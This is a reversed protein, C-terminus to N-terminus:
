IMRTAAIVIGIVFSTIGFVIFSLILGFFSKVFNWLKNGSYFFSTILMTYLFTIFTITMMPYDIDGYKYLFLFVISIWIPHAQGYFIIVSNELFNYGKNKFVLWIGITLLPVFIFSVVKFNNMIFSNTEMMSQQDVSSGENVWSMSADNTMELMDINLFNTLLIYVTLLLFYYSVPGFYKVRIGSISAKIVKVPRISLDILTRWFTSDFGFTRKQLESFLHSWNLKEFGQKQGCHQCYKGLAVQKCSICEAGQNM